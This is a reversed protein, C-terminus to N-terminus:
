GVEKESSPSVFFVVITAIIWCRLIDLGFGDVVFAIFNAQLWQRSFDNETNAGFSIIFAACVAAFGACLLYPLLYLLRRWRLSTRLLGVFRTQTRAARLRWRRLLTASAMVSELALERHHHVTVKAVRFISAAAQTGWAREDFLETCADPDETPNDDGIEDSLLADQEASMKDAADALYHQTLKHALSNM